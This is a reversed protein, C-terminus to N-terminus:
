EDQLSSIFLKLVSLSGTFLVFNCMTKSKNCIIENNIDDTCFSGGSTLQEINQEWNPELSIRPVNNNSVVSKKM